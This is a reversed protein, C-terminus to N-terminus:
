GTGQIPTTGAVSPWVSRARPVLSANAFFFLFLFFSPVYRELENSAAEYMLQVVQIGAEALTRCVSGVIFQYLSQFIRSLDQPFRLNSPSM